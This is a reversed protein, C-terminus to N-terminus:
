LKELIKKLGNWIERLTRKYDNWKIWLGKSSVRIERNLRMNMVRVLNLGAKRALEGYTTRIARGGGPCPIETKERELSM